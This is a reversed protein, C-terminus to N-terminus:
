KEKRRNLAGHYRSAVRLADDGSMGEVAKTLGESKVREVWRSTQEAKTPLDVDAPWENGPRSLWNNIAVALKPDLKRIHARTLGQGLWPAYVREVFKPPSEPGRLGPYIEPASEPLNNQDISLPKAETDDELPEQVKKFSDFYSRAYSIVKYENLESIANEIYNDIEPESLGSRAFVDALSERIIKAAILENTNHPNREKDPRWPAYELHVGKIGVLSMVTSQFKNFDIPDVEGVLTLQVGQKLANGVEASEHRVLRSTLDVIKGGEAM